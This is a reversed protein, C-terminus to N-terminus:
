REGWIRVELELDIGLRASVAGRVQEILARVDAATAGGRNVIFNAHRESVEAAGCRAGKMGSEEIARGASIGDPNRFICGASPERMPQRRRKERVIAEFRARLCAPDAERLAFRAALIVHGELGCDRYRFPVAARPLRRVAGSPTLVEVSETADATEGFRGGANMFVAGGVSAPIGGLGELGALGRVVTKMVLRPFSCGGEARVRAGNFSLRNMRRLSIVIGDWGSDSVLVNAGAGIVRVPTQTELSCKWLGALEEVNRPSALMGAPGGIRFTTYPALPRDREVDLRHDRVFAEVLRRRFGRM